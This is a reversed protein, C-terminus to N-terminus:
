YRQQDTVPSTLRFVRFFWPDADPYYDGIELPYWLLKQFVFSFRSPSGCLIEFVLVHGRFGLCVTIKGKAGFLSASAGSRLLVTSTEFISQQQILRRVSAAETWQCTSCVPSTRISKSSEVSLTTWQTSTLATQDPSIFQPTVQEM